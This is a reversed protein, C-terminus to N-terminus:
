SFLVIITNSRNLCRVYQYIDQSGHQIVKSIVYRHMSYLPTKAYIPLVSRWNIRGLTMTQIVRATDALPRITNITIIM